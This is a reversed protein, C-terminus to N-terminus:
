EFDGQLGNWYNDPDDEGSDEPGNGAACGSCVWCQQHDAVSELLCWGEPPEWDPDLPEYDPIQALCRLCTGNQFSAEALESMEQFAAELDPYSGEPLDGAFVVKEGPAVKAYHAEISEVLEFNVDDRHMM